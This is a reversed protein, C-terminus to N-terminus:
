AIQRRNALGEVLEIAHEADQAQPTGLVLLRRNGDVFDVLRDGVSVGGALPAVERGCVSDAVLQQGPTDQELVRCAPRPPLPLSVPNITGLMLVGKGPGFAFAMM